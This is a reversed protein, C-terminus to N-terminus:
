GLARLRKMYLDGDAKTKIVMSLATERNVNVDTNEIVSKGSKAALEKLHNVKDILTEKM